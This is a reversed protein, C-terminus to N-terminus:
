AAGHRSTTNQGEIRAVRQQLDNVLERLPRMNPPSVQQVILALAKDQTTLQRKVNRAWAAAGVVAAVILPALLYEFVGAAVATANHNM